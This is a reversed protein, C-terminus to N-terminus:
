DGGAVETGPAVKTGRAILEHRVIKWAGGQRQMDTRYTAWLTLTAGVPELLYHHAQVDSRCHANDGDVTALMPGLMHQTPGYKSLAAEVYERWATAGRVTEDGFGVVEVDDAFCSQYLDLDRDDVGAAYRLMVDQLAIRDEAVAM